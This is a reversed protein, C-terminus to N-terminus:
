TALFRRVNRVVAEADPQSLVGLRKLMRSPDLTAIKAIRVRSAIPLGATTLDSVEIDSSWRGIRTSTIMALWVLRHDRCIEPQSIVLAPRRKEALQDAFPFPVAWIEWPRPLVM